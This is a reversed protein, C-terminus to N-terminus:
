WRCSPPYLLEDKAGHKNSMRLHGRWKKQCRQFFSFFTWYYSSKLNWILHTVSEVLIFLRPYSQRGVMYLLINKFFSKYFKTFWMKISRKTGKVNLNILWELHLSNKFYTQFHVILQTWLFIVDIKSNKRISLPDSHWSYHIFISAFHVLLLM